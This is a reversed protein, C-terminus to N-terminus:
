RTRGSAPALPQAARAPLRLTMQTGAGPQSSATLEGGHATALEAAVALGIGSGSIHEAAQGRWFRDFIHPLEAAPIGVGSDTVRLIADPGSRRVEVRVTAGTPSFKVANTLLNTVVQHLWRPDGLIDAPELSRELTLGAVTFRSALSDAASAAVAALDCPRLQLQLAAADAAALGQLDDVM